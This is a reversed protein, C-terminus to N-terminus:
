KNHQKYYDMAENIWQEILKTNRIKLIEQNIKPMLSVYPSKKSITIYFKENVVNKKLKIIKEHYGHKHIEILGPYLGCLFYDVRGHELKRFHNIYKHERDISLKEKIYQDFEEGYSEGLHTTGHKGILDNWKDYKFQKDYWVFLAVPDEMFWESYLLYSQREDNLYAAAIIDINGNMANKHVRKWPGVSIAEYVVGIKKLVYDVVKFAVGVMKDDQLWMIPPYSPHASVKVVDNAAALAFHHCGVLCYIICVTRYLLLSKLRNKLYKKGM